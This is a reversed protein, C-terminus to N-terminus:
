MTVEISKLVDQADVIATDTGGDGFVHDAGFWGDLFDRGGGGIITDNAPGGHIHDRGAGGDLICPVPCVQMSLHDNGDGGNVSVQDVDSPQFFRESGNLDMGFFSIENHFTAQDDGSTGTVTLTRNILQIPSPNGDDETLRAGIVITTAGFSRSLSGTEVL